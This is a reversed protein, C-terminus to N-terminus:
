VGLLSGEEKVSLHSMFCILSGQEQKEGREDEDRSFIYSTESSLVRGLRTSNLSLEDRTVVVVLWFYRRTVVLSLKKWSHENGQVYPLHFHSSGMGLHFEPFFRKV